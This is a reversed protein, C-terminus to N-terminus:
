NIQKIKTGCWGASLSKVKGRIDQRSTESNSRGQARVPVDSDAFRRMTRYVQIPLRVREQSADEVNVSSGLDDM